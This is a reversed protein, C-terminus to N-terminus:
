IAKFTRRGLLNVHISIDPRTHQAIYLLSGILSQYEQLPVLEQTSTPEKFVKPNRPLSISPIETLVIRFEKILEEIATRQTLKVVGREKEWTLEM